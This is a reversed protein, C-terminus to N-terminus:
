SLARAVPVMEVVTADLEACLGLLDATTMSSGLDLLVQAGQVDMTAGRESLRAGLAELPGTSHIRAVFRRGQAAVETPPGQADLQSSSVMLAEDASMALPSTLSLRAGFVVWSREALAQVIIKAFARAVEEPLGALPDELAIVSAGTALAAALVVGRRAHPPMREFTSGAVPVLQVLALAETALGRADRSSRGALRSSWTVYELATWKPPLAPDLPAGALLASRVAAEATLGRVHLRGRMVPRLGCTAEFVIRPAGLLLARDGRTQLTLGDCAPVGDVDVRLDEIELLPAASAESVATV